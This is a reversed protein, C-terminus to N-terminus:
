DEVARRRVFLLIGNLIFILVLLVVGIAFLM